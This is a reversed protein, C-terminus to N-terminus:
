SNWHSTNIKRHSSKCIIHVDSNELCISYKTFHFLYPCLRFSQFGIPNHANLLQIHFCFNPVLFTVALRLVLVLVLVLVPWALVITMALIFLNRGAWWLRHYQMSSLQLYHGSFEFEYIWNIMAWYFPPTPRVSVLTPIALYQQIGHKRQDYIRCPFRSGLIPKTCPLFQVNKNSLNFLYM